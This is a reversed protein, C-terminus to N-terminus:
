HEIRKIRYKLKGAPATIEAVDGDRRGLLAKGLPSAISIKGRTPDV